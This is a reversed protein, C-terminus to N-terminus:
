VKISFIQDHKQWVMQDEYLKYLEELSKMEKQVNLLTPYNSIPLNFLREANTLDQKEHELKLLEDRYAKMLKVGSDLDDGVSGPGQQAFKEAFLKVSKAFENIQISTIETFREKVLTLDVNRHKSNIFLTDWMSQIQELVDKEDQGVQFDYMHLTRYREKIERIREEILDSIQQIETITRLVFKLDELTDTDNKL